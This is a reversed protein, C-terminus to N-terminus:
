APPPTPLTDPPHLITDIRKWGPPLRKNELSGDYLFINGHATVVNVVPGGNGVTASAENDGRADIPTRKEWYWFVHGDGSRAEIQADGAVGIAILGYSTEFRALGADFTGNDWVIPGNMTTVEIQRASDDRFVLQAANARVRIRDFSSESVLLRGNSPQVFTASSVGNLTLRGGYAVAFLTGGHYGDILLNGQGRLRADLIAVNPPVMVTVHSGEGTVIRVTDHVGAHFDAAYPFDEPPLTAESIMGTLPDRVKVNMLPIPVSLPNQATGFQIPRRLVQVSEDDTDFQITPKNWARITVESRTGAWVQVVSQDGVAFSSSAAPAPAPVLMAVLLVAGAALRRVAGNVPFAVRRSYTVPRAPIM